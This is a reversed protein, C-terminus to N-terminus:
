EIVQDARDLLAPAITLGIARATKLNFILKFKTAIEVPVEAPKRGRLVKDLVIASLQYLADSDSTYSALGGSIPFLGNPAFAPLAVKLALDAVLKQPLSPQVLLADVPWTRIKAIDAELQGPSQVLVPKLAIKKTDAASQVRNLFVNHFPDNATANVLVAVGRAAPLVETILELNKAATEAVPDDVGTINAGPRAHSAILGVEVPNAAVMIIPIDTTAFKAAATATGQYAVIADVKLTTLERALSSLDDIRGSASRFEFEINRGEVYDLKRLEDKLVTVFHTPDPSGLVLVGVKAAKREANAELPWAILVGPACIIFERRGLM